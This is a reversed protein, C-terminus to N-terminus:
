ENSVGVMTDVRAMDIHEEILDTFRDVETSSRSTTAGADITDVGKRTCLWQLLQNRVPESDFFGHVYCGFILGDQAVAGADERVNEGSRRRITLPATEHNTATQGAHIEYGNFETGSAAFPLASTTEGSVQSLEKEPHLTTSVPLLELGADSGPEDEIGDTDTILTGLMQFGGCIGFLPTQRKVAGLIKASLGSTRLFRLDHRTNRTGPLIVLDPSGFDDASSVYRLSVDAVEELPLFDTYNSIHPLHPVVIDLLTNDRVTRTELNLSDEDEIGLDGAHPIVGLIPIQLMDRIKDIGSTLLSVDGRFKNIVVGKILNRHREPLLSVTGYISAFVGGRDIDAVLIVDAGAHEAMAMNVFDDDLMNIEAPSGAGELIILDHRSSIREYAAHAAGRIRQKMEYYDKAPFNGIPVGDVIVQSGKRGMPKLLVPNMDTHPRIGCARAQVVQSRGMEGGEATVFSNLAMNQAKFPAVNRGKRWFYRCLAAAFVSKGSNSATGVVM